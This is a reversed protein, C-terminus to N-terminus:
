FKRLGLTNLARTIMAENEIRYPLEFISVIANCSRNFFQLVDPLALDQLFMQKIAQKGSALLHEDGHNDRVCEM